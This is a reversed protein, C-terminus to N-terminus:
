NNNIRKVETKKRNVKLGTKEEEEARKSLKTQAHKQRHSLLSNEDTFDLDEQEKKFFFLKLM